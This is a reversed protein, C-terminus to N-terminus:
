AEGMSPLWDDIIPGAPLRSLWLHAPLAPGPWLPVGEALEHRWAVTYVRDVVGPGARERLGKTAVITAINVTAAGGRRLAQAAACLVKEDLEGDDFIWMRRGRVGLYRSRCKPCHPEPADALTVDVGCLFATPFAVEAGGDSLVIIADDPTIAGIKFYLRESPPRRDDFVTIEIEENM